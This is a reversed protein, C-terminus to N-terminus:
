NAPNDEVWINLISAEIPSRLYGRISLFHGNMVIDPLVMSLSM